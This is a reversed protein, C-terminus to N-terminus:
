FWFMRDVNTVHNLVEEPRSIDYSSNEKRQLAYRDEWLEQRLKTEAIKKGKSHDDIKDLTEMNLEFLFIFKFLQSKVSEWIDRNEHLTESTTM